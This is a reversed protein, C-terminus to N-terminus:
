ILHLDYSLKYFFDNVKDTGEVIPQDDTKMNASLDYGDSLFVPSLSRLDKDCSSSLTKLLHINETEIDNIFDDDDAITSTSIISEDHCLENREETLEPLKECSNIFLPPSPLRPPQDPFNSCLRYSRELTSSSKKSLASSYKRYPRYHDSINEILINGLEGQYNPTQDSIKFPLSIENSKEILPELPTLMPLNRLQQLSHEVFKETLEM